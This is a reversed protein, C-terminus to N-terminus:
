RALAKYPQSGRARDNRKGPPGRKGPLGPGARNQDPTEVPPVYADPTRGLRLAYSTEPFRAATSRSEIIVRFDTPSTKIPAKRAAAPVAMASGTPFDSRCAFAEGRFPAGRTRTCTSLVVLGRPSARRAM